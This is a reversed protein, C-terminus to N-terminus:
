AFVVWGLYFIGLLAALIASFAVWRVEDTAVLFNWVNWGLAVLLVLLIVWFYLSM